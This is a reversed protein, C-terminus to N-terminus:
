LSNNFILKDMRDNAINPLEDLIQTYMRSTTSVNSHGVERSIHETSIGCLHLVDVFQGRLDHVRCFDEPFGCLQLLKRFRREVWKANVINGKETVFLFCNEKINFTKIHWQIIELVGMSPHVIRTSKDTKNEDYLQNRTFQKECYILRRSFDIDCRRLGTYEGLRMGTLSALAFICYFDPLEKKCIILLKNMEKISFRKRLKKPIRENKLDKFPNTKILKDKIALNFSAKLLKICGNIVHKSTNTERFNFYLNNIVTPTVKKVKIQQLLILHKNVYCEYNKITGDKYNAVVDCYRLFYKFVDGCTSNNNVERTCEDLRKLEEREAEVAEARTRFGSKTIQKRKYNGFRDLENDYYSIVYCWTTKQKNKDYYRKHVSM